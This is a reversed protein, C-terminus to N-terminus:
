EDASPCKPQKGTKAITFLAAIFTLHMHRKSKYNQRSIHEPTPNSSQIASVSNELKAIDPTLQPLPIKTAEHSIKAQPACVRYNHHSSEWVCPGWNNCCTPETPEAHPIRTGWGPILDVDGASCPLEWGSPWWPLGWLGRNKTKQPVEMNNEMTTVSVSMGM